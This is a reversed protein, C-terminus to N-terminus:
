LESRIESDDELSTLLREATVRGSLVESVFANVNDFTLNEKRMTSYVNKSLNLGLLCPILSVGLVREWQPHRGGITYCFQFPLSSNKEMVKSITDVHMEVSEEPLFFLLCLPGSCKQKLDYVSDVHVPPGMNRYHRKAFALIDEAKRPGRYEIAKAPVKSGQALLVITPYGKVGYRQALASHVTADVSGIKVQDAITAMRRWEPELAKCHGCWPAFFMILWQNYTDNLVKNNFEAETLSIPHGAPKTPEKRKPAPVKSKVHKNVHKMTFTVLDQINLTGTYDALTPQESPGRGLFVKFTPFLKVNYRKSVSDDNIAYCRVVDRTANAAAEYDKAFRLCSDCTESYFQVLSVGHTRLSTDFSSADLTTVPSSAGYLTGRVSPLCSSLALLCVIGLKAM